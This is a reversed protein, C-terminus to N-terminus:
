KGKNFQKFWKSVCTECVFVKIFWWITILIGEDVKHCFACQGTEKYEAKAM